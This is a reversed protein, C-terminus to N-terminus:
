SILELINELFENSSIIGKKETFHMNSSTEIVSKYFNYLEGHSPIIGYTSNCLMPFDLASDGACIIHEEGEIEMIYKLPEWKNLLHPLIYIKRGNQTLTYGMRNVLAKLEYITRKDTSELKLVNYLFLDDCYRFSSFGEAGEFAKCKNLVEKPSPINSMKGSIIRQWNLDICDNKLIIGGNAVISYKPHIYDQFIGIRRFKELSRTTTPIFLIKSNIKKLLKVARNTMHSINRDGHKEVVTADVPKYKLFNNSYILTRDLDSAFIM